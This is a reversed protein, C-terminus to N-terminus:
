AIRLTIDADTATFVLVVKQKDAFTEFHRIDKDKRIMVVETPVRNLLHDIVKPDGITGTVPVRIKVADHDGDRVLQNFPMSDSTYPKTLQAM